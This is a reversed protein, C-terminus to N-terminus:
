RIKTSIVLRGLDKKGERSNVGERSSEISGVFEGRGREKKFISRM